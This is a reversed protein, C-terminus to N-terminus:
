GHKRPERRDYEERAAEIDYSRRDAWLVFDGLAGMLEHGLPTLEYDVHPPIVPHVTRTVIGDRELRRLTETLMRQSIGRISRRLENFRRSGDTLRAMVEMSWSDSVRDLVYRGRCEGGEGDDPPVPALGTHQM